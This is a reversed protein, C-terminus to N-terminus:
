LTTPPPPLSPPPSGPIAPVASPVAGADAPPAAAPPAPGVPPPYSLDDCTAGLSGVSDNYFNVADHAHGNAHNKLRWSVISLTLGVTSLALGTGLWLGIHDQDALGVLGILGGAGMTGGLISTVVAGVGNSRASAAHRAAEPVCRVHQALRPYTLGGTLRERGAYIEFGGQYRMTLEGRAVVQPAYQTSACGGHVTAAALSLACTLAVRRAGRSTTDVTHTPCPSTSM